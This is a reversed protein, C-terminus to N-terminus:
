SRRLSGADWRVPIGLVKSLARVPVMLTGQAVATPQELAREVRDLYMHDKGLPLVVWRGDPLVAVASNHPQDYYLVTGLATFYDRGAMYLSGKWMVPDATQPIARDGCAICIGAPATLEEPMAVPEEQPAADWTEDWYDRSDFGGSPQNRDDLRPAGWLSRNPEAYFDKGHPRDDLRPRSDAPSTGPSFFDRLKGRDDLRPGAEFLSRRPPAYFDTGHFRDDLRYKRERSERRSEGWRYKIHDRDDLRSGGYISRRPKRWYDKLKGRDDLRPPGDFISGAVAPAIVSAALLGIVLVSLARMM